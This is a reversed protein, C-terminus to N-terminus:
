SGGGAPENPQSVLQADVEQQTLRTFVEDYVEVPFATRRLEAVYRNLSDHLMLRRTYKRTDADEIDQYQGPRIELIKVLHWGAPSEVPGGIENPHASFAVGDLEPFGSGKPVWGLEGLSRKADPDISYESAAQYFTLEGSEIRKKIEVAKEKTKVVLMQVNRTEPIAIREANQRYYTRIEDDPPSMKQELQARHTNVLSSKRFENVHRRYEPDQELGQARAKQVMIRSDILEDLAARRASPKSDAPASTLRRRVQGWTLPEGGALAVVQSSKRSHDEGPRLREEYVQVDVGARLRERLTDVKATYQQKRLIAEISEHLDSTFPTDSSINSRYYDRIQEDTVPLDGILYRQRYMRALITEAYQRVDNQVVPNDDLGKALADLYLLDSTIRRDLLTLRMQTREPTGPKPIPIGVVASSNITMDLSSFTILEEGVRAIVDDPEAAEAGSVLSGGLIAAVTLLTTVIYGKRFQYKLM